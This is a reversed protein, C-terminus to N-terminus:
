RLGVTTSCLQGNGLKIYVRYWFGAAFPTTKWNYKYESGVLQYADGTDTTDSYLSEDVASSMSAGKQPTMWLPSSTPMLLQNNADLFMFKVPVTSGVKFISPGHLIDYQESSTDDKDRVTHGHNNIPNLFGDCRYAVTLTGAAFTTFAYNNSSLAGVSCTIPYSGVSSTATATTTCTAAGTVDTAIGTAFGTLTATLTPLSGGKVMTKSDATVTLPAKFVVVAGPKAQLSSDTVGDGDFDIRLISSVTPSTGPSIVLTATTSAASPVGEFSTTATIMGNTEEVVDLTFSGASTGHMVIAGALEAPITLQQVQGYKVYTVIPNSVIVGTTTAGSYNGSVDTFGLTLPSHLTFRLTAGKPVTPETTSIYQPLSPTTSGTILTNILTQLNSIELINRHAESLFGFATIIKHDENYSKLDVWYRTSSAGNAWLASPEVVTGDGSIVTNPTFTLESGTQYAVCLGLIVKTCTNTKVKKYTINSLTNNGWGAVEYLQIGSPPAWNDLTTHTNTSAAVLVSNAITPHDLDSLTPAVRTSDTMFMQLQAVSNIDKGYVTVWDPLTKQDFSVVPDSVQAFYQAAPLLTYAGPMNQVVSRATAESLKLPIDLGKGHLISVIADPTGLQPVAVFVIKDIYKSADVGLKLTLAKALLGGNSHAVITVKKTKSTAALQQLEQIIYPTTSASLYDIRTGTQAGDNLLQEFSLRWDYALPEWDNIVGKAKLDDMNAIFSKYVNPCVVAGAFCVEDLISKQKTYVSHISTGSPSLTLQQADADSGPEWLQTDGSSGDHQYLRSGEIGPLFMVNDNCNTTCAPLTSTGVYTVGQISYYPLRIGPYNSIIDTYNKPITNTGFFQQHPFFLGYVYVNLFNAPSIVCGADSGNWFIKNLTFTGSTAINYVSPDFTFSRDCETVFQLYNPDKYQAVGLSITNANYPKFSIVGPTFNGQLLGTTFTGSYGSGINFSLGDAFDISTPDISVASNDPQTVDALTPTALFLFILSIYVGGLRILFHKM